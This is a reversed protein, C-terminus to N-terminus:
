SLVPLILILMMGSEMYGLSKKGFRQCGWHVTYGMADHDM